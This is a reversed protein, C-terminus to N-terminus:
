KFLLLLIKPHRFGPLGSSFLPLYNGAYEISQQRTDEEDIGYQHFRRGQAFEIMM